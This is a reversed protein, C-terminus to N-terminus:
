PYFFFMLMSALCKFLKVSFEISLLCPYETMFMALSFEKLIKQLATKHYKLLALFKVTLHPVHDSSDLNCERKSPLYM